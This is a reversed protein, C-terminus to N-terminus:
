IFLLIISNFENSYYDINNTYIKLTKLEILKICSVTSSCLTLFTNRRWGWNNKCPSGFYFCIIILLLTFIAKRLSWKDFVSITKYSKLSKIEIFKAIMRLSACYTPSLWTTGNICVVFSLPEKINIFHPLVADAYYWPVIATFQRVNPM